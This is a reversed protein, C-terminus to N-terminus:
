SASEGLSFRAALSGGGVPVNKALLILNVANLGSFDMQPFDLLTAQSNAFSAARLGNKLAELKARIVNAAALPDAGQAQTEASIYHFIVVPEFADNTIGWDAMPAAGIIWVLYPYGDPIDWSTRAIEEYSWIRNPLVEPLATAVVATFDTIFAGWAYAM